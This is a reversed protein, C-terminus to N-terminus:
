DKANGTGYEIRKRLAAVDDAHIKELAAEMHLVFTRAKSLANTAQQTTTPTKVYYQADIRDEKAQELQNCQETTVIGQPTFIERLVAITCEHIECKIGTQTLLAYAADYQAYYSAVIAWDCAENRLSTEAVSLATRAKAIYGQAVSPSPPILRIGNKKRACWALNAPM